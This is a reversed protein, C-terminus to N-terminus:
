LKLPSLFQFFLFTIIYLSLAKPMQELIMGYIFFAILEDTVILLLGVSYNKNQWVIM